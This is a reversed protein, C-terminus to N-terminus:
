NGLAKFMKFDKLRSSIARYFDVKREMDNTFLLHYTGGIKKM